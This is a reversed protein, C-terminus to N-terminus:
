GLVALSRDVEEGVLAPSCYPPHCGKAYLVLEGRVGRSALWRGTARQSEGDGYVNALDLARGGAEYFLDLLRPTTADDKLDASGIGGAPTSCARLRTASSATRRIRRCILM